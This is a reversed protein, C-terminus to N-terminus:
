GRLFIISVLSCNAMEGSIERVIFQGEAISM